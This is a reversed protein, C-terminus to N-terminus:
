PGRRVCILEITNEVQGISRRLGAVDGQCAIHRNLISLSEASSRFRYVELSGTLTDGPSNRLKADLWEELRDGAGHKLIFEDGNEDSPTYAVALDEGM